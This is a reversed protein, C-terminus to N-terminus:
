GSILSSGVCNLLKKQKYTENWYSECQVFTIKLRLKDYIVINQYIAIATLIKIIIFSLFM